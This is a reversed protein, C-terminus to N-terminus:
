IGLARLPFLSIFIKNLIDERKHIKSLKRSGVESNQEDIIKRGKLDRVIEWYVFHSYKAYEHSDIKDILLQYSRRCRHKLHVWITRVFIYEGKDAPIGTPDLIQWEIFGFVLGEKNKITSIM